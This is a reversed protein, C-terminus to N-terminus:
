ACVYNTLRRALAWPLNYREAFTAHYKERLEARLTPVSTGYQHALVTLLEELETDTHKM